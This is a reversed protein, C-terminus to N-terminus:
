HLYHNIPVTNSAECGLFTQNRYKIVLLRPLSETPSQSHIIVERNNKKFGGYNVKRESVTEKERGTKEKRKEELPFIFCFDNKLFTTKHTTLVHDITLCSSLEM